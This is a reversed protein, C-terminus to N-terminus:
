QRWQFNMQFATHQLFGIRFSSFPVLSSAMLERLTFNTSVLLVPTYSAQLGPVETSCSAGPTGHVLQCCM